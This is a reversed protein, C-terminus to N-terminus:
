RCMNHDTLAAQGIKVMNFMLQPVRQLMEFYVVASKLRLEACAFAHM